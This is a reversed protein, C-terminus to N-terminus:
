RFALEYHAVLTVLAGTGPSPFTWGQMSTSMCQTVQPAALSSDAVETGTVSGTGGIVLRMDVHGHLSIDGAVGEEYCRTVDRVHQQLVRNAVGANLGGAISQVSVRVRSRRNPPRRVQASESGGGMRGGIVPSRAPTGPNEGSGYPTESASTSAGALALSAFATIAFTRRNTKDDLMPDM